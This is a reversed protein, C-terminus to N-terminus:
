IYDYKNMWWAVFIGYGIFFHAAVVGVAVFMGVVAGWIFATRRRGVIGCSQPCCLFLFAFPLVLAATFFGSFFYFTTFQDGEATSPSLVGTELDVESLKVSGSSSAEPSADATTTASTSSAIPTPAMPVSVSM